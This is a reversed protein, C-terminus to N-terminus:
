MKKSQSFQIFNAPCKTCPSGRGANMSLMKPPNAFFENGLRNAWMAGHFEIWKEYLHLPVIYHIPPFGAHHPPLFTSSNSIKFYILPLTIHNWRCVFELSNIIRISCLWHPWKHWISWRFQWFACQSLCELPNTKWFNNLFIINNLLRIFKHLWPLFPFQDIWACNKSYDCYDPIPNLRPSHNAMQQIFPRGLWKIHHIRRGWFFFNLVIKM